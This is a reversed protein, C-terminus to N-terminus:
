LWFNFLWLTRCSNSTFNRKCLSELRRHLLKSTDPDVSHGFATLAVTQCDGKKRILDPMNMKLSFSVIRTVKVKLDRMAVGLYADDTHFPKRKQVYDFLSHLLDTSLVVFAGAQFPPFVDESFYKKSISWKGGVRRRVESNYYTSGGYFRSPFNEKALYEIVGPIRIYVDDDTKLTYKAKLTSAWLQGMYFKIINNIYNDEINGIVMDNHQKAEEENLEDDNTGPGAKGLVFVLKWKLNKVAANNMARLQECSKLSGWTERITERRRRYENGKAGSNVLVVLFFDVSGELVPIIEPSVFKFDVFPYYDNIMDIGQSNRGFASPEHDYLIKVM